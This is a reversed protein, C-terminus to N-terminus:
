EAGVGGVLGELEEIRDIDTAIEPYTSWLARATGHVLRSAAKELSEVDAFGRKLAVSAAVTLAPWVGLMIALRLPSKRAAHAERIRPGQSLLFGPRLLLINGGTARGERLTLATRKLSPYRDYCREVEVISYVMDAHLEAARLCFDEVAEPTIFPIDSTCVAICEADEFARAGAFVNDVFSGHDEIMQCGDHPPVNGVIAIPGVGKAASLADVVRELMTRGGVPLLARNSVGLAVLEPPPDGGALVVVPIRGDVSAM